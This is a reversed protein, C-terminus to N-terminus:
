KEPSTSFFTGGKGDPNLKVLYTATSNGDHQIYWREVGQVKGNYPTIVEIKILVRSKANPYLVKDIFGVGGTVGLIDRFLRDDTQSEARVEPSAGLTSPSSNSVCGVISLTFFIFLVNIIKM